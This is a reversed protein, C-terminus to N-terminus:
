QRAKKAKENVELMIEEIGKDKNEPKKCFDDIELMYTQVRSLLRFTNNKTVRYANNYAIFMGTVFYTKETKAALQEREYEPNSLPPLGKERMGKDVSQASNDEYTNWGQCTLFDPTKEEGLCYSYSCFLLLGFLFLEVTIAKTKAM